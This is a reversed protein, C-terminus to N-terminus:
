SVRVPRNIYLEEVLVKLCVMLPHAFIAGIPGLLLGFIVVATLALAPPLAVAWKQINPVLVYGELVHIALFLGAVEPAHWPGLTFAVLIAPLSSVIPGLYPVFELAGALVGLALAMPM